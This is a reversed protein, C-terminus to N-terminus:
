QKSHQMRFLGVKEKLEDALEEAANIQVLRDGSLRKERVVGDNALRKAAHANNKLTQLRKMAEGHSSEVDDVAALRWEERM